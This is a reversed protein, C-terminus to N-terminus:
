SAAPLSPQRSEPIMRSRRQNRNEERMNSRMKQKKESHRWKREEWGKAFEREGAGRHERETSSDGGGRRKQRATAAREPRM